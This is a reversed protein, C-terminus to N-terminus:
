FLMKAHLEITTIEREIPREDTAHLLWACPVADLGFSLAAVLSGDEGCLTTVISLRM